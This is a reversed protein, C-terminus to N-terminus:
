CIIHYHKVVKVNHVLGYHHLTLFLIIYFCGFSYPVRALEHWQLNQVLQLSRHSIMARSSVLWISPNLHSHDVLYIAKCAVGERVCSLTQKPALTCAICSSCLHNYKSADITTLTDDISCCFQSRACSALAVGGGGGWYLHRTGLYNASMFCMITSKKHLSFVSKWAMMDKWPPQLSSNKLPPIEDSSLQEYHCKM